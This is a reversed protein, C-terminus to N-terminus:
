DLIKARRIQSVFGFCDVTFLFRDLGSESDTVCPYLLTIQKVKVAM